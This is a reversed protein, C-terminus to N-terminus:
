AWAVAGPKDGYVGGPYASTLMWLYGSCRTQFRIVALYALYLSPPLQGAVLTILWAIFAMLTSAGWIAVGAVIAAPLVLIYRFFVEFRNLRQPEPIAVRVPYSPDDDFTFPPYVDTLLYYYANVRTGWRLLGSMYTVAFQPLRGTFLAGWWGVFLVFGAAFYLWYLVFLHPIALIFRFFVTVRRQPAPEAAAVLIPPPSSLVPAPGPYAQYPSYATM